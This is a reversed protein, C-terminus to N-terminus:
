LSNCKYNQNKKHYPIFVDLVYRGCYICYKVGM